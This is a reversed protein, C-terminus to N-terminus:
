RRIISCGPPAKPPMDVVSATAPSSPPSSNGGGDSARVTFLYTGAVGVQYDPSFCSEGDCTSHAVVDFRVGDKEIVYESIDNETNQDWCLSFVENIDLTVEVEGVCPEANAPIPGLTLCCLMSTLLIEKIM